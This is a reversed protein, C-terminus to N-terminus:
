KDAETEIYLKSVADERKGKLVHLYVGTEKPSRHGMLMSIIGVDVGRDMLHTAFTHRLTKPHLRMSFNARVGAERVVQCIQSSSIRKRHHETRFLPGKKANRRALYVLLESWVGDPVPIRRERAGKGFRIFIEQGELDVDSIDLLRLESTRLGCGYLLLIM